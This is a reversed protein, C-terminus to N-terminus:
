RLTIIVVMMVINMRIVMMAIITIMMTEGAYDSWGLGRIFM